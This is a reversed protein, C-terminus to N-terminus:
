KLSSEHFARYTHASPADFRKLAGYAAWAIEPMTLLGDPAKQSRLLKGIVTETLETAVFIADQRYELAKHLSLFLKDRSFPYLKGRAGEVVLASAYDPLEITTYKADCAICQRRRWVSPNLTRARSNYVETQKGCYICVM